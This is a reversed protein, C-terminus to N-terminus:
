PGASGAAAPGSVVSVEQLPFPLPGGNLVAVLANVQALANAGSGVSVQGHGGTIPSNISPASVVLGDLVVALFNGINNTTYAAFRSAADASLSFDVVPLGNQDTAASAGLIASSDFLAVLAPDNPLPQGDTVATPGTPTTSASGYRAPPLPIFQLLGTSGLLSGTAQLNAIPLTVVLEDLGRATITLGALGASRARAALVTMTTALAAPDPRRGAAPVLRYTVEAFGVPLGAANSPSPRPPAGLGFSPSPPQLTVVLTGVVILVAAFLTAIRVPPTLFRSLSPLRPGARRQPISPLAAAVTELIQRPAKTPGDELWDALEADVGPQSNM